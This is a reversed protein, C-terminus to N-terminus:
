EGDLDESTEPETVSDDIDEIGADEIGTDEIETDEEAETTKETTGETTEETEGSLIIIQHIEAESITSAIIDGKEVDERSASILSGKDVRYYETDSDTSVSDTVESATLTGIDLSAYDEVEGETTYVKVSIYSSGVYSVEGIIDEDTEETENSSSATTGSETESSTDADDPNSGCGTLLSAFALLMALLLSSLVHKRKM